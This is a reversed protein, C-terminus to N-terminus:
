SCKGLGMDDALLCGLGCRRLHTIYSIGDWQYSRLSMSQNMANLQTHSSLYEIISRDSESQLISPPTSRQLIFDNLMKHSHNFARNSSKIQRCRNKEKLIAALPVLYRFAQICNKRIVTDYNGIGMLILSIWDEFRDIIVTLDVTSIVRELIVAMCTKGYFNTSMLADFFVAYVESWLDEDNCYKKSFHQYIATIDALHGTMDLDDSLSEYSQLLRVHIKEDILHRM